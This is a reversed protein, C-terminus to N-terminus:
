IGHNTGLPDGVRKWLRNGNEDLWPPNPNRLAGEPAWDRRWKVDRAQARRGISKFWLVLLLPVGLVWAAIICGLAFGSDDDPVMGKVFTWTLFIGILMLWAFIKTIASFVARLVVFMFYTETFPMNPRQDRM